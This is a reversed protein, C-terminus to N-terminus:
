PPRLPPRLPLRQLLLQNHPPRLLPFQAEVEEVLLRPAGEVISQKGSHWGNEDASYSMMMHPPVVRLLLPPPPVPLRVLAAMLRLWLLRRSM